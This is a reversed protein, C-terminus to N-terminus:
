ALHKALKALIRAIKTQHRPSRPKCVAQNLKPGTKPLSPASITFQEAANGLSRAAKSALYAVKRWKLAKQPM